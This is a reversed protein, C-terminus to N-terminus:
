HEEFEKNNRLFTILNETDLFFIGKIDIDFSKELNKIFDVIEAREKRNNALKENLIVIELNEYYVQKSSENSIEAELKDVAKESAKKKEKVLEKIKGITENYKQSVEYLFKETDERIDDLNLTEDFILCTISKEGSKLLISSKSLSTVFFDTDYSNVFYYDNMEFIYKLYHSFTKIRYIGLIVSIVLIISIVFTAFGLTLMINFLFLFSSDIKVMCQFEKLETEGFELWYVAIFLCIVSCFFSIIIFFIGFKTKEASKRLYIKKLIEKKEELVPLVYRPIALPILTLFALEFGIFMTVIQGLLILLDRNVLM